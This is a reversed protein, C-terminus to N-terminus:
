ERDRRGEIDKLMRAAEEKHAPDDWQVRPLELCRRLHIRAEAYRELKVLARAYELHHMPRSPDLAIAREFMEAAKEVTAGPPVGGYIVKAFAKLIWGLTAVGYNWRGLVHYAGDHTPDLEIAREAEAKVEQSLRIKTKGGEFLALRGVCVALFFHANASRSDLAVARRAAEVGLLYHERAADRDTPELARGVDAHARALRWQADASEPDAQTADQYHRLAADNDFRAYAADGLSLEDPPPAVQPRPVTAIAMALASLIAALM